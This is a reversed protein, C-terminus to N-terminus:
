VYRPKAGAHRKCRKSRSTTSNVSPSDLSLASPEHPRPQSTDLMHFKNDTELTEPWRSHLGAAREGRCTQSPILEKNKRDCTRPQCCRRLTQWWRTTTSQDTIPPLM